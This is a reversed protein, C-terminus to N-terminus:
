SCQWNAEGHANFRVTVQTLVHGRVDMGMRSPQKQKGAMDSSTPIYTHEPYMVNLLITLLHFDKQLLWLDVQATECSTCEWAIRHLVSVISGTHISEKRKAM